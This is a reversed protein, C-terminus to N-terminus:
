YLLMIGFLVLCALIGKKILTKSRIDENFLKPFLLTLVFGYIIGFFVQVGGLLSVLAVPGLSYALFTIAKAMVFIVENIFLVNLTRKKISKINKLFANRIQPFVLFLILGGIGIGWSEYSLIKSFSNANIAFKILVGAFAWMTNFIIVLFFTSPLSFVKNNTKKLSAVIVSMLIIIFGLLQKLTITEGLIFFALILSIVPIIQFLIIITTTEGQSLAKFYIPLSWVTIIGTSIVILADFFSLIPFGTFVWITTGAIFGVITTYISLAKYDKVQNSILYKDTFNSITYLAPALLALFVWNM